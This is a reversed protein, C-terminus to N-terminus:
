LRGAIAAVPGTRGSPTEVAAAPAELREVGLRQLLPGVAVFAREFRHYFAEWFGAHRISWLRTAYM